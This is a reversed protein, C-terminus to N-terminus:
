MVEEDDDYYHTNKDYEKKKKSQIYGYGYGYGYGYNNYSGYYSAKKSDVDNIVVYVNKVNDNKLQSNLKKFFAKNTKGSRVVFINTDMLPALSYVDAVLGIPSTDVIIYDYRKRLEIFMEKLKESRILEGPNPPVTGALLIDFKFNDKKLILEDLSKEGIIYNTVGDKELLSLREYISPKRIDMDILLTKLGTMAYVSALNTCFYTKGDGSEASTTLIMMNTKRQVIFEVRTRIVRFMETFSSRPRHAAFIPDNSDTHKVAGILTFPSNKEIDKVNRITNNLLEILIIIIFPILLGVIGHTMYNRSKVNGNVMGLQRAKDLISNDPSNSAKQIAAEARKQLFFTYYNDDVRYKRELTVMEMEKKPLATIQGKVSSLKKRLDEKDLALATKMNKLVENISNRLNEVDRNYKPYLPNKETVESRIKLADNFQQVLTMLMPENLGLSGPALVSGSELNSRLYNSLYTLYSEKLKLENQKEDYTTAKGLVETSHSPIDVIQNSQRFETMAGESAELSKRVDGIQVDIFNMTKNAADNKRELNEALYLESLKNIFDIDRAPTASVLSVALISAGDSVYNVDIRGMFDDILSQRDRFSFYINYESSLNVIPTITAFFFNNQIPENLRGKIKLNLKNEDTIVYTGDPKVQLKFLIGYANPAIYDPKINILNEGYKNRQIFRGRTYYDIKLSPMSDVIRSIFDYSMLMSKQNDLNRFGSQLGFGQMLVQSGSSYRSSEEIILTGTSQYSAVWSRNKIYAVGMAFLFFIVFLYWYHLFLPLWEKIDFGSEDETFQQQPTYQNEEM